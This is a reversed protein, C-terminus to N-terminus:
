EMCVDVRRLRLRKIRRYVREKFEDIRSPDVGRGAAIRKVEEEVLAYKKFRENLERWPIGSLAKGVAEDYPLVRKLMLVSIIPYGLYGRYVTGNDTSCAEMRELDVYVRYTRSGDSSTVIANREDVIKIRGDAVAGAAELVKIKPPYRLYLM